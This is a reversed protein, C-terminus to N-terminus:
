QKKEQVGSKIKNDCERCVLYSKDAAGTYANVVGVVPCLHCKIKTIDPTTM